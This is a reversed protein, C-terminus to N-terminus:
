HQASRLFRLNPFASVGERLLLDNWDLSKRGRPIAAGPLLIVGRVGIQALRKQLTLAALEGAGSVDKDAWILVTHVGPPPAFAALLTTNVLSWTVIGSGRYAALATELGEAVGLVGAQPAGLVIAAGMVTRGAPLSMMKRPSEVQAKRGEADLYTRQLTVVEGASNVVACVLAPFRGLLLYQETGTEGSAEAVSRPEYYPLAPHFRVCGSDLWTSAGRPLVARRRLYERAPSALSARLSVAEDWVRKINMAERDQLMPVPQCILRAPVSTCATTGVRAAEGSPGAQCAPEGDQPKAVALESSLTALRRTQVEAVQRGASQSRPLRSGAPHGPTVGLLEAVQELAETFSCGQVFMLLAIGNKFSGCQNCIGGGTDDFDRFLRFGDKGGHVPCPVHRGLRAIARQLPEGVLTAMVRAWQGTARAKVTHLDYYRRQQRLATSM